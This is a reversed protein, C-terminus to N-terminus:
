GELIITVPGDAVSEIEMYNGFSGTAVKVGEKKLNIVFAQYIQRALEPAAASVFSPRRGGSTDAYLTFQSVVIIEGKAEKISLNMKGSEDAMVRLNVLKQAMASVRALGDQKGVGLLIFLGPGIEAVVKDRDKDRVRAKKVRQIVLKM